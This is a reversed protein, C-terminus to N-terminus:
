SSKKASNIAGFGTLKKDVNKFIIEFDKRGKESKNIFRNRVQAGATHIIFDAVELGPLNLSKGLLFYHTPMEGKETKIKYKAFYKKTLKYDRSSEEIILAVSTIEGMRIDTIRELLFRAAIEYIGINNDIITNKCVIGAVRAFGNNKFFDNLAQLQEPTPSKLESAHLPKDAGKFYDNKLNNWPISILKEYDSVLVACGGLGFIPYRKDSLADNGTEDIFVMLCSPELSFIKGEKTKIEISINESM